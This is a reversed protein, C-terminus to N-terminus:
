RPEVPDATVAVHADAPPQEGEGEIIGHLALSTAVNGADEGETDLTITFSRECAPGPPCDLPEPISLEFAAQNDGTFTVIREVVPATSLEDPIVTLRLNATDPEDLDLMYQSDLHVYLSLRSSTFAGEGRMTIRQANTPLQDAPFALDLPAAELWRGDGPRDEPPNPTELGPVADIRTGGPVNIEFYVDQPVEEDIDLNLQVSVYWEIDIAGSLGDNTDFTLELTQRCVQPSTLACQIQAAEMLSFELQGAGELHHFQRALVSQGLEELAIRLGQPAGDLDYTLVGVVEVIPDAYEPAVLITITAADSARTPDLRLAPGQFQHHAPSTPPRSTAISAAGAGAIALYLPWARRITQNSM